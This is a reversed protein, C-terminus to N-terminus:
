GVAVTLAALVAARAGDHVIAQAHDTVARVLVETEAPDLGAGLDLRNVAGRVWGELDGLDFSERLLTLTAADDAPTFGEVGPVDAQLLLM